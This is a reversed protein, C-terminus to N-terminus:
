THRHQRLCRNDTHCLLSWTVSSGYIAQDTETQRLIGCTALQVRECGELHGGCAAGRCASGVGIGGESVWM